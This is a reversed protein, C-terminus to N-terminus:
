FDNAIMELMGNVSLTEKWLKRNEIQLSVFNEQSLQKHFELVKEAIQKRDKWEIWVVHNKWNIKDEFPLLCNTNVFIPIKGLMLTEYLRVSFNGGGRICLVYDSNYINDYYEKTTKEREQVTNAGARYNKRYIFDTQISECNELYHLLKAREYASAFFPEYDKRLPNKFFRKINETFFKLVEKTRKSKSFSAHGCFGITPIEKKELPLINIKQYIREFHDSLSVPLGKNKSSLQNKFGGMRFYIINSFEPFKEGFDGGIYGYAKINLQKLQLNLEKLFLTNNLLYYKISFPIFVINAQNVDNVYIFKEDVGWNNKENNNWENLSLFPRTLIFLEKKNIQNFSIKPIYIKLM